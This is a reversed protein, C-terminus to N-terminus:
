LTIPPCNDFLNFAEIFWFSWSESLSLCALTGEREGPYQSDKGARTSARM